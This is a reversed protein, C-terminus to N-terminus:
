EAMGIGTGRRKVIVTFIFISVLNHILDRQLFDSPRGGWQRDYVGNHSVNKIRFDFSIKRGPAEIMEAKVLRNEGDWEYNFRGDSLLNGDDDYTPVIECLVAKDNLNARLSIKL